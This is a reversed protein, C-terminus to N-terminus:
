GLGGKKPVKEQTQCDEFAGVPNSAIERKM